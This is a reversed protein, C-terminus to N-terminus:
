WRPCRPGAGAWRMHLVQANMTLMAGGERGALEFGAFVASHGLLVPARRGHCGARAILRIRTLRMRPHGGPPALATVAGSPREPLAQGSALWSREPTRGTGSVTIACRNSLAPCPAAKSTAPETAPARTAGSRVPTAMAGTGGTPPS